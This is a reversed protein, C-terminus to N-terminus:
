EGQVRGLRTEVRSVTKESAADACVHGFPTVKDFSSESANVRRFASVKSEDSLVVEIGVCMQKYPSFTKNTNKRGFIAIAIELLVM